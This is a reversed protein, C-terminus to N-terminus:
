LMRSPSMKRPEIGNTTIMNMTNIRTHRNGPNLVANSQDRGYNRRALAHANSRASAFDSKAVVSNTIFEQTRARRPFVYQRANWLLYGIRADQGPQALGGM